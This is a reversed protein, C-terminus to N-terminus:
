TAVASEVLSFLLSHEGPTLTLGISYTKSFRSLTTRKGTEFDSYDILAPGPTIWTLPTRGPSPDLAMLYLGGEGVAFNQAYALRDAVVTEPGGDIPVRWVATPNTRSYYVYGDVGEAPCLGGQKTLQVPSGGSAPM